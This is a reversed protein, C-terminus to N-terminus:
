LHLSTSTYTTTSVVLPTLNISSNFSSPYSFCFLSPTSVTLVLGPCTRTYRPSLAGGTAVVPTSTFSFILPLWLHHSHFSFSAPLLWLIGCACLDYDSPLAASSCYLFFIAIPGVTIHGLGERHRRNNSSTLLSGLWTLKWVTVTPVAHALVPSPPSLTAVLSPAPQVIAAIRESNHM